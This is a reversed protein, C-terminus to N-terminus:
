WVRWPLLFLNWLQLGHWKFRLITVKKIEVGFNQQKRKYIELCIM